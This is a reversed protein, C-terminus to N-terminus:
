KYLMEDRELRRVWQRRSTLVANLHPHCRKAVVFGITSKLPLLMRVEQLEAAIPIVVKDVDKITKIERDDDREAIQASCKPVSVVAGHFLCYAASAAYWGNLGQVGDTVPAKDDVYGAGHIQMRVMESIEVKVGM